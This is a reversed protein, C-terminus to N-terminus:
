DGAIEEYCYEEIDSLIDAPLEIEEGVKGKGLDRRLSYIQFYGGEAPYCNEPPGYTKAPVCPQYDGRAVLEIEKNGITMTLYHIVDPM